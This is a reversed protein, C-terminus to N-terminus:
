MRAARLRERKASAAHNAAELAQLEATLPAQGSFGWRQKLEPMTASPRNLARPQGEFQPVGKLRWLPPAPNSAPQFRVDVSLRLRDTTNAASMHITTPNFLLIDGMAMGGLPARWSSQAIELPDTTFYRSGSVEEGEWGEWRGFASNRVRQLMERDRRAAEREEEDANGGTGDQEAAPSAICLVGQEISVDGLPLWGTVMQRSASGFYVTDQHAGSFLGRPYCRFLKYEFPAAAEGGYLQALCAMLEPAELARLVDPNASLAPNGELVPIATVADLGAALRGEARGGDDLSFLSATEATRGDQGPQQQEAAFGHQLARLVQERAAAVAAQPILGRLLLYGNDSFLRRRLETWQGAHLLATSDCMPKVTRCPFALGARVGIQMLTAGEQLDLVAVEREAQLRQFTTFGPAMPPVPAHQLAHLAAGGPTDAVLGQSQKFAHYVPLGLDALKGAKEPPFDDKFGVFLPEASHEPPISLNRLVDPFTLVMDGGYTSRDVMLTTHCCSTVMNVSPASERLRHFSLHEAGSIVKFRNVLYTLALPREFTAVASPLPPGGRVQAWVLKQRCDCCCCLYGGRPQQEAFAMHVAGCECRMHVQQAM